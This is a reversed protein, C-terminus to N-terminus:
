QVPNVYKHKLRQNLKDSMESCKSLAQTRKHSINHRLTQDKAVAPDLLVKMLLAVVMSCHFLMLIYMYMYMYMYM